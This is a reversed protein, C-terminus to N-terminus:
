FPQQAVPHCRAASQQQSNTFVPKRLAGGLGAQPFARFLVGFWVHLTPGVLVLGTLGFRACRVFDFPLPAKHQKGAKGDGGGDADGNGATTAPEGGGLLTRKEIALQCLADGSAVIFGATIAKTLLPSRELM